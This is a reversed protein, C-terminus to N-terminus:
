DETYLLKGLPVKRKFNINVHKRKKTKSLSDSSQSKVETGGWNKGRGWKEGKFILIEFVVLIM